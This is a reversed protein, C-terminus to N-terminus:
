KSIPQTVKLYAFLDRIQQETLADLIGEPMLSRGMPAINKIQEQRVTIDQDDMGRLVTVQTDRDALFGSLTRGDKTTLTVYEFGERIEANPDVISILMTGLDDRQYNTLEPGIHGGKFFLKHCASCSGMFLKEGDYTKGVGTSLIKNIRAIKNKFDASSAKAKQPYLKAATTAINKDQSSRLRQILDSSLLKAEIKGGEINKLLDLSWENRSILLLLAATRIDDPLNPILSTVQQGINKDAYSSLSALSAKRLAPKQKQDTALKLLVPVASPVSIEGFTQIYLMRDTQKAKNNAIIGLAEKVAEADGQRLRLILSSIGSATMAKVLEDPLGVMPRGRYAEEFGKMLLGAYEKQPALQLLQACTLLDKRRGQLAFRRMVRPLIHEKVMPLKWFGANKLLALVADRNEDANSELVWWCLLPVYPDSVDEAHTLLATVLPMGQEPPLRRATSAMQSRVEVYSESKAAATIATAMTPSLQKADGLLRVTWMRVPPYSHKLTQQATGEDLEGLQYLACVAGMAALDKSDKRALVQKLKEAATPDKRQALLRIATHRHWKNAHGLLKILQDTTKKELNIDKELKSNKGRLRYARGTTPDIQGQYNQGHAIYHEYFDGIFLSGDPANVIYVPRFSKDESVLIDKKDLTEFTAGRPRLENAVIKNHLPDVSILDGLYEAPIATGEAVAGFHTFRAVPNDNRMMPLEGFTYPNRPPGIKSPNVGQKLYYGGQVYHWGHTNGGNHGSFLRGQADLELGFINGTGEAFIEYRQSQPHYRWVMCGEFYEGKSGPPDIGPRIIRSSTTSGQAGYIWGDLGWVIGNAVSHTDELGFGQLKVVPPGDPIDDFDADPYFMLYPTNMVWVGGHGRLSANAMNLGDQFVKHKDFFGDGTTDEHISIIDRGRANHPPAPPVKDYISRYFKDRSLMKLGAPYPYQRYQAVWLRGREDFSFHTPQAIEPEHLLEEVIFAEIPRMKKLSEAPPLKDGHSLTASEGLVRQSDHYQDFASGPPKDKLTSGDGKWSADDGLRFQWPGELNCEAFYSMIFPAETVFGGPGSHNYVRIAIQNWQGKKLTGPPVKHRYYEDKGSKFQPPMQGGIGIKKGNVFIEHADALGRININVSEEFLNRAHKNFFSNDPMFWTRYWAYGDYAKTKKLASNEWAGPVAINQWDASTQQAHITSLSFFLLAAATLGLHRLTTM